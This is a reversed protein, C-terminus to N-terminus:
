QGTQDFNHLEHGQERYAKYRERGALRDEEDTSVIEVIRPFRAALNEVSKPLSRGVHILVDGHPLYDLEDAEFSEVLVVPTEAAFDDFGWAHPLFDSASFSWLQEDLQRLFEKSGVVVINRMPLDESPSAMIKRILRCSYLSKNNVQSHFDIRAM